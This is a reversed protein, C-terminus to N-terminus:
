KGIPERILIHLGAAILTGGFGLVRAAAIDEAPAGKSELLTVVTARASEINPFDAASPKDAIKYRTYANGYGRSNRERDTTEAPQIVLGVPGTREAHRARALYDRALLARATDLDDSVAALETSRDAVDLTISLLARHHASALYTGFTDTVTGGFMATVANITRALREAGAGARFADEIDDLASLLLVAGPYTVLTGIYAATRGTASTALAATRRNGHLGAAIGDAAHRQYENVAWALADHFKPEVARRGDTDPALAALNNTIRELARRRDDATDYRSTHTAGLRGPHADRVSEHAIDQIEIFMAEVAMHAAAALGDTDDM